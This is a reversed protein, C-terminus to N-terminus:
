SLYYISVFIKTGIRDEAFSVINKENIAEDKIAENVYYKIIESNSASNSTKRKHYPMKTVDFDVIVEKREIM